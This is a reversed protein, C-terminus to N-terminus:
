EESGSNAVDIVGRKICHGATLRFGAERQSEGASLSEEVYDERLSKSASKWKILSM